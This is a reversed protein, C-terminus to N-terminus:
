ISGQQSSCYVLHTPLSLAQMQIRKVMCVGELCSTLGSLSKMTWERRPPGWLGAYGPDPITTAHLHHLTILPLRSTKQPGEQLECPGVPM